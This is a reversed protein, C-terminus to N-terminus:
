YRFKHKKKRFVRIESGIFHLSIFHVNHKVKSTLLSVYGFMTTISMVWNHSYSQEINKKHHVNADLSTRLFFRFNGVM